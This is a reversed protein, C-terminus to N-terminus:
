AKSDNGASTTLLKIAPTLIVLNRLSFCNDQREQTPLSAKYYKNEASLRDSPPLADGLTEAYTSLSPSLLSIAPACNICEAKLTMLLSRRPGM